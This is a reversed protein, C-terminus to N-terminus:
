EKLQFLNDLCNLRIKSPNLKLDVELCRELLTIVNSDHEQQTSGFILIDDIINVVGELGQLLERLASEFLDNSNSVGMTLVNFVYVGLPTLIATLLKSKENLLHHLLGKTADFVSFFKADKLKFSVEDLTNLNCVPRVIYKNLNTPNLCIGLDGNPKKVVVSSNLWETGQNCDLKSIISQKEMSHVEQEFRDKLSMPVCRAPKQIPVADDSLQINVPEVPFRGVGSFISKFRPGHVLIEKNLFTGTKEECSDFAFLTHDDDWSDSVRCNFNVLNLWMLDPLGLIPKCKNPVVFFLCTYPFNCQSHYVRHCVTGLQKISSKTATLLQVSKDITKGLDKMNHDPFLEHYVSVPLLNGSARTDLKFRVKFLNRSQERFM